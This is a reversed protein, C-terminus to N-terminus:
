QFLGPFSRSWFESQESQSGTSMELHFQRAYKSFDCGDRMMAYSPAGNPSWDWLTQWALEMLPWFLPRKQELSSCASVHMSQAHVSSVSMICWNFLYIWSEYIWIPTHQSLTYSLIGWNSAIRILFVIIFRLMKGRSKASKKLAEHIRHEAEEILEKIETDCSILIPSILCFWKKPTIM